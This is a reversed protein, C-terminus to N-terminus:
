LWTVAFLRSVSLTVKMLWCTHKDHLVTLRYIQSYHKFVTEQTIILMIM